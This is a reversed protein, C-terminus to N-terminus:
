RYSGASEFEHVRRGAQFLAYGWYDSDAVFASLTPTGLEASLEEAMDQQHHLDSDLLSVWGKHPGALWFGRVPQPVDLQPLPQGAEMHRAFMEMMTEARGTTPAYGHRELVAGIASAVEHHNNSRVHTSFAHTGMSP